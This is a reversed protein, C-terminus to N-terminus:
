PPVCETGTHITTWGADEPESELVRVKQYKEQVTLGAVQIKTSLTVLDTVPIEQAASYLAIAGAGTFYAMGPSNASPQAYEVNTFRPINPTLGTAITVGSLNKITYTFTCSASYSGAVGGDKTVTVPFADPMVIDGGAWRYTVGTLGGAARAISALPVYLADTPWAAGTDFSWTDAGTRELWVYDGNAAITIESSTSVTTWRGSPTYVLIGGTVKVKFTSANSIYCYFPPMDSALSSLRRDSSVEMTTGVPGTIVRVTGSSQPTIARLWAEVTRYWEPPAQGDSKIM